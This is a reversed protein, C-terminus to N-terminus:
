SVLLTKNEEEESLFGELFDLEEKTEVPLKPLLSFDSTTGTGSNTNSNQSALGKLIDQQTESIEALKKFLM